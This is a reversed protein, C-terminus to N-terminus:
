YDVGDVIVTLRGLEGVWPESGDPMKTAGAYSMWERDTFEKLVPTMAKAFSIAEDKTGIFATLFGGNPDADDYMTVRALKVRKFLIGEQPQQVHWIPTSIPMVYFEKDVGWFKLVTGLPYRDGAGFDHVKRKINWAHQRDVLLELTGFIDGPELGHAEGAPGLIPHKEYDVLEFREDPKGIQSPVHDQDNDFELLLKHMGCLIVTKQWYDAVQGEPSMVEAVKELVEYPKLVTFEKKNRRALM